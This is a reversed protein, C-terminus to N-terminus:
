PEASSLVGLRDLSEFFRPLLFLIQGLSFAKESVFVADPTSDVFLDDLALEQPREWGLWLIGLSSRDNISPRSPSQPPQAWNWRVLERHWRPRARRPFCSRGAAARPAKRATRPVALQHRVVLLEVDKAVESRRRGVLLWLVASLALYAFSLLM